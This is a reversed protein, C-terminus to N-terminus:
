TLGILGDATGSIRTDDKAGGQTWGREGLGVEAIATKGGPVVLEAGPM